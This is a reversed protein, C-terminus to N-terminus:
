AKGGARLWAPIALLTSLDSCAAVFAEHLTNTNVLTGDLDVCLVRAQTLPKIVQEAMAATEWNSVSPHGYGPGQSELPEDVKARKLWLLLRLAYCRKLHGTSHRRRKKQRNSCIRMKEYLMSM